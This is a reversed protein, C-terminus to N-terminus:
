IQQVWFVDVKFHEFFDEVAYAGRGYIPLPEGDKEPWATKLFMKELARCIATSSKCYNGGTAQGMASKLPQPHDASYKVSVTGPVHVLGPAQVLYSNWTPGFLRVIALTTHTTKRWVKIDGVQKGLKHLAAMEIGKETLKKQHFQLQNVAKDMEYPTMM